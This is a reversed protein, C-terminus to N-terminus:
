HVFKHLVITLINVGVALGVLREIYIVEVEFLSVLESPFYYTCLIYPKGNYINELTKKQSAIYKLIFKKDVTQLFRITLDLKDLFKNM